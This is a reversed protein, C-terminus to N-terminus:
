GAHGAERGELWAATTAVSLGVVILTATGLHLTVLLAHELFSVPLEQYGLVTIGGLVVQFPLLVLVLLLSRYIWPNGRYRRWAQLAAGLIMFGVVLALFRHFWEAFIQLASYGSGAVVEPHLFPVLVGYCLPWDPCASGANIAKTFSGVLMLLLTAALTVALAVPFGPTLGRLSLAARNETEQSM